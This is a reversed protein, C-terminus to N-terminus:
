IILDIEINKVNGVNVGALRVPANKKIGNVYDFVVRVDYGKEWLYSDHGDSTNYRHGVIQGFNNIDTPEFYVGHSRLLTYEYEVQSNASVAFALLIVLIITIRKM